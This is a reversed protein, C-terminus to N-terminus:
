RVLPLSLLQPGFYFLVFFLPLTVALVIAFEWILSLNWFWKM